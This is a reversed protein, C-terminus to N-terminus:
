EQLGAIDRESVGPYDDGLKIVRRAGALMAYRQERM